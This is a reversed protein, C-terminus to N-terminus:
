CIKLLEPVAAAGLIIRELIAQGLHLVCWPDMPVFHPCHLDFDISQDYRIWM